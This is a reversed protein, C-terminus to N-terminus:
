SPVDVEWGAACGNKQVRRKKPCMMAGPWCLMAARWWEFDLGFPAGGHKPEGLPQNVIDLNKGQVQTLKGGCTVGWM